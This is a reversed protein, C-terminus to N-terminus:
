KKPKPVVEGECLSETCPFPRKLPSKWTAFRVAVPVIVLRPVPVDVHLPPSEVTPREDEAPSKIVAPDIKFVPVAVEVNAFPIWSVAPHKLFGSPVHAPAAPPDPVTFV